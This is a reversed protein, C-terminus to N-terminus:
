SFFCSCTLVSHSFGSAATASSGSRALRSAFTCVYWSETQLLTLTPHLAPISYTTFPGSASRADPGKTRCIVDAFVAVRRWYRDGCRFASSIRPIGLARADAAIAHRQIATRYQARRSRLMCRAGPACAAIVASFGIRGVRRVRDLPEPDRRRDSGRRLASFAEPPCRPARLTATFRAAIRRAKRHPLDVM